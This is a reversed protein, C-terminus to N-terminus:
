AILLIEPPTYHSKLYPKLLRGYPHISNLREKYKIKTFLLEKKSFICKVHKQDEDEDHVDDEEEGPNNSSNVQLTSGHAHFNEETHWNFQCTSQHHIASQAEQSYFTMGLSWLLIMLLYYIKM